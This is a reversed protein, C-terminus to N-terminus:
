QLFSLYIFTLNRLTRYGFIIGRMCENIWFVDRPALEIFIRSFDGLPSFIIVDLIKFNLRLGPSNISKIKM